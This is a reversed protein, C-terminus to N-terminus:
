SDGDPHFLRLYEQRAFRDTMGAVYDAVVREISAERPRVNARNLLHSPAEMWRIFHSEPLLEPARTFEEFLATVFREGKAAMRLVRHHRYVRERLFNELEAKLQQLGPGFSV